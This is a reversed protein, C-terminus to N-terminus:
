VGIKCYRLRSFSFCCFFFGGGLIKGAGQLCWASARVELAKGGPDASASRSLWLWEPVMLGRERCESRAACRM